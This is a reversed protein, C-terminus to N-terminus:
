PDNLTTLLDSILTTLKGVNPHNPPPRLFIQIKVVCYLINNM